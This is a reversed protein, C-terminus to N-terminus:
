TPDDEALSPSPQSTTSTPQAQLALLHQELRKVTMLIEDEEPDEMLSSMFGAVYGFVGIGFFILVTAMVRGGTTAPVIDGYGVTSVTILSWWLSDMIGAATDPEVIQLGLGGAFVTSGVVGAVRLIKTGKGRLRRARLLLRVIRFVRVLRAIRFGQFLYGFPISSILDLGKEWSLLYAKRENTAILGVLWETLFMMCFGLNLLEMTVVNRHAGAVATELVM